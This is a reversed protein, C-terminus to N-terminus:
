EKTLALMLSPEEPHNQPHIPDIKISPWFTAIRGLQIQMKSAEWVKLAQKLAELREEERTLQDVKKLFAEM